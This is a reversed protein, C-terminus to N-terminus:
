YCRAEQLPDFRMTGASAGVVGACTTGVGVVRSYSYSDFSGRRPHSIEQCLV